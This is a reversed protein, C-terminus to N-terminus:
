APKAVSPRRNSWRKVMRSLGFINRTLYKTTWFEVKGVDCRQTNVFLHDEHGHSEKSFNISLFGLSRFRSVIRAVDDKSVLDCFDHFEVSVQGIGLLFSDSLSDLLEIEAGEVDVKLLDIRTLGHLASFEDFRMAPVSIERDSESTRTFSSAESNAAVFFRMQGTRDAIAINFSKVNGFNRLQAFCEPNPEIAFCACGYQRAMESSFRGINAGLDVVISNQDVFRNFFTHGSVRNM